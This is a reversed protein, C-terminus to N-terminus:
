VSLSVYHRLQLCGLYLFCHIPPQRQTPPGFTFFLSAGDSFHTLYFSFFSQAPWKVDSCWMYLHYNWNEILLPFDLCAEHRYATVWFLLTWVRWSVWSRVSLSSSTFDLADTFPQLRFGFLSFPWSMGVWKTELGDLIRFQRLKKKQLKTRFELLLYTNKNNLLYTIRNKIKAWRQM